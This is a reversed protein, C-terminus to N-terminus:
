RQKTTHESQESIRLRRIKDEVNYAKRYAERRLTAKDKKYAYHIARLGTNMPNGGIKFRQGSHVVTGLKQMNM